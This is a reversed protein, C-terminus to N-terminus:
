PPSPILITVLILWYYNLLSMMWILLRHNLAYSYFRSCRKYHEYLWYQQLCLQQTGAWNFGDQSRQSAACTTAWWNPWPTQKWINSWWRGVIRAEVAAEPQNGPWDCRLLNQWQWSSDIFFLLDCSGILYICTHLNSKKLFRQLRNLPLSLNPFDM